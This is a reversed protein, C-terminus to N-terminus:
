CFYEIQELCKPCKNVTDSSGYDLSVVTVTNSVSFVKMNSNIYFWGSLYCLAMRKNTSYKTAVDFANNNQNHPQLM